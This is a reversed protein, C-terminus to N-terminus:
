AGLDEGTGKRSEWSAPPVPTVVNLILLTRAEKWGAWDEESGMLPLWSQWASSCPTHGGGGVCVIPPLLQGRGGPWRLASHAPCLPGVRIPLVRVRKQELGKGAGLREVM